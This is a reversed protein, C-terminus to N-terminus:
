RPRDKVTVYRHPCAYCEGDLPTGQRVMVMLLSLKEAIKRALEQEEPTRPLNNMSVRPKWNHYEPDRSPRPPAEEATVVGKLESVGVRIKEQRQGEERMMGLLLQPKEFFEEHTLPRRVVEYEKLKEPTLGTFIRRYKEILSYIEFYGTRLHENLLRLTENRDAGYALHWAWTEPVCSDFLEEEKTSFLLNRSHKLALQYDTKSAFERKVVGSLVYTRTGEDHTILGLAELDYLYNRIQREDVQAKELLQKVEELSVRKQDKIFQYITALRKRKEEATARTM